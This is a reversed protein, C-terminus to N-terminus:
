LSSVLPNSPRKPFTGGRVVYTSDGMGDLSADRTEHQEFLYAVM